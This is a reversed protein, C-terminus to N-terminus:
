EHRLAILPDVRSARRAPILAAVVAVVALSGGVGVFTAPDTAKVQFLLSALVRTLGLSAIVGILLGPLILAVTRWVIMRMVDGPRAGLAIRVGIEHTRETVSYALVGYIGISALVLALMSFLTLLRAQFLPEAITSAILSEMTGVAEVPQDKDLTRVIGRMAATTAGPDSDGSTRVAYSVHSLFFSSTTQAMPQYVAADPKERIGQEIVDDVVGVITLWDAATPKDQMSIREGIASKDPWLRKAVSASMIVVGPANADDRETFARGELLRIGMVRFYDPTVAPKAAWAAGRPLTRGDDLHFDGMILAHGLPRWNVAASAAVGPLSAMRAVAQAHMDRMSAATTYKVDPLDVTMSVVHDPRFGLDVARLRLFSRVVLGAGILLVLALAVESVVLANRLIGRQGTLTRGGEGLSARLERRTVRFAPVLGFGIGTVLCLAATFALVVGDIHIQDGRPLLGPPALALLAHVGAIAIGIGLMGAIFAVCTSETLLQRILRGRDAGLAVRIAMEHQRTAARMLLLNAVNACAILLVFAVAGAFIYLSRQVDGVIETQIPLVEPVLENAQFRGQTVTDATTAIVKLEALAQQPTTGPALRGVVPRLWSNHPNLVFTTPIWLQAGYPFDFAPPMVGMITHRKGDLVIPQGIVSAAGGFRERWLRDGLLVADHGPEGDDATFSRGIAPSAGLVSLFTTTVESAVIRAPEGAGTVTFLRSSFTTTQTFARTRHQYTDYEVDAMGPRPVFPSRPPEHSVFFLTGPDRFPLPRILVGNVVTFMATNAGIGLALTLVAVVAFGPARKLSRVAYRVDQLLRELWLGGWMDRTVEKVHGVNGFERRAAAAADEPSEGRAMRDAIAMALHARIEDDLAAHRADLRDHKRQWPMKM